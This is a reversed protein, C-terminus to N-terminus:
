ECAHRVRETQPSAPFDRAFATAAARGKSTKGLECLLIAELARREEVFAGKPFRRAQERVISLARDRDGGVQASKARKLLALEAAFDDRSGTPSAVRPKPREVVAPTPAAPSEPPTVIPPAIPPSPVIAPVAAPEPMAPAPADITTPAIAAPGEARAGPWLAVGGIIVLVAVLVLPRLWSRGAVALPAGVPPADVLPARGDALARRLAALNAVRAEASPVMAAREAEILRDLASM